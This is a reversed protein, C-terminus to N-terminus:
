TAIAKTFVKYDTNLVTIPRYNAINDAEKKKYIPCMWGENFKMGEAIGKEAIERFVETMVWAVDCYRHREKEEASKYQQLLLKWLEMPIGDLGAAKDNASSMLATTVEDESVNKRLEDVDEQVLSTQINELVANMKGEDPEAAPDRDIALLQEHYKRAIEAMKDSRTERHEPDQLPNRLVRITDRPTSERVSRAWHKSMTEGELRNRASGLLRAKDRRKRELAEIREAILGTQEHVEDQSLGEVNPADQMEKQLSRIANELRPQSTKQHNRYLEVVKTKFTRLAVQPGDRANGAVGARKVEDQMERVLQQTEKKLQKNKLLNVPIAWRGRGIYPMNESTLQVSVLSHDTKMGPHEIRWDTCWPYLDEKVHIRDLRSQSRGTYTYGRKTPNRWRWGDTLNLETTLESMASRAAAPDAGGRNHLRDVEPNEVLNFDGVVIDLRLEETEEVRQLLEEWFKAKGANDAPAYVNMIHLTEGGNWPVEVLVVRGDIVPKCVVGKTDIISKNIVISVGGRAGPEEPDASHVIHLSNRFRKEMTEQLEDNPHTEQLALVAIKRRKLM